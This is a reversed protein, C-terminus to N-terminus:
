SHENNKHLDIKIIIWNNYEYSLDLDNFIIISFVDSNIEIM